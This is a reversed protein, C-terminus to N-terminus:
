CHSVRAIIAAHDDVAMRVDERGTHDLLALAVEGFVRGKAGQVLAWLRPQRRGIVEQAAHVLAADVYGNRKPEAPRICRGAAHM